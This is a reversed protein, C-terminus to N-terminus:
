LTVLAQCQVGIDMPNVVMSVVVTDCGGCNRIRQQAEMQVALNALVACGHEQLGCNEVNKGMANVDLEIFEGELAHNLNEKCSCLNSLTLLSGKLIIIDDDTKGRSM